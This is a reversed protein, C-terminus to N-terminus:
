EATIALGVPVQRCCWPPHHNKTIDDGSVRFFFSFIVFYLGFHLWFSLAHQLFCAVKKWLLVLEKLTSTLPLYLFSDGTQRFRATILRRWQMLPTFHEWGSLEDTEDVRRTKPLLPRLDPCASMMRCDHKILPRCRRQFGAIFIHFHVLFSCTM